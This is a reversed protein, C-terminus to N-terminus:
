EISWGSLGVLVSFRDGEQLGFRGRLAPPVGPLPVPGLHSFPEEDDDEFPHEFLLVVLPPADGDERFPGRVLREGSWFFAEQIAPVAVDEEDGQWELLTRFAAQDGVAERALELLADLALPYFYVRVRAGPHPPITGGGMVEAVSMLGALGAAATAWYAGGPPFAFAGFTAAVRDWEDAHPLTAGAARAEDFHGHLQLLDRLLGRYADTAPDLEVARRAPEIAERSWAEWANVDATVDFLGLPGSLGRAALLLARLHHAVASSPQLELVRDIRALARTVSAPMGGEEEQDVFDITFRGLRVSLLLGAVDDPHDALYEDLQGLLLEVAEFDPISEEDLLADDWDVAELLSATREAREILPHQAAVPLARASLLIALALFTVVRPLPIRMTTM